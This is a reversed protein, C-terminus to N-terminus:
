ETAPAEESIARFQTRLENIATVRETDMKDGDAETDSKLVEGDEEDDEPKDDSLTKGDDDIPDDEVMGSLAPSLRPSPGTSYPALQGKLVGKLMNADNASEHMPTAEGDPRPTAGRSVQGRTVSGEGEETDDKMMGEKREAEEKEDKIMRHMETLQEGILGFQKRREGLTESSAQVQQQLDAIEEDLKSNLVALEDRPKLMKNKTIRQAQKDFKKRQAQKQKAAALERRRNEINNKVIIQQALIDDKQAAYREREQINSRCTQDMRLISLNLANIENFLKQNEAEVKRHQEEVRAVEAAHKAKAAEDAAADPPPTPLQEPRLNNNNLADPTLLSAVRAFPRSEIALLRTSNHLADEEDQPLPEFPKMKAAMEKNKTNKPPIKGKPVKGNSAM